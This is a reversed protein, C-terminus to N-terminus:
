MMRRLKQRPLWNTKANQGFNKPMPKRGKKPKKRTTFTATKIRLVSGWPSKVRIQRLIRQGCSLSDDNEVNLFIDDTAYGDKNFFDEEARSDSAVAVTGHPCVVPAFIGKVPTPTGDLFASKDLCVWKFGFLQILREAEPSYFQHPIFFGGGSVEFFERFATIGAEFQADIVSPFVDLFPIFCPTATTTALDINGVKYHRFFQDTLNKGYRRSFDELLGLNKEIFKELVATKEPNKGLMKKALEIRDNLYQCFENQIGTNSFLACLSPTLAFTLKSPIAREAAKDLFRLIPIYTEAMEYFFSTKEALLGSKELYPQHANIFISITKNAM